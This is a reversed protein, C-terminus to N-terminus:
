QIRLFEEMSIRKRGTGNLFLVRARSEGPRSSARLYIRCSQPNIKEDMLRQHVITLSKQAGSFDPKDHEDSEIGKMFFTAEIDINLSKQLTVIEKYVLDADASKSLLLALPIDLAVGEETENPIITHSFGQKKLKNKLDTINKIINANTLREDSPNPPRLPKKVQNKGRLQGNEPSNMEVDGPEVYNGMLDAAKGAHDSSFVVMLVFFVLLCSLMDGFSMMWDPTGLIIKYRIPRKAGM